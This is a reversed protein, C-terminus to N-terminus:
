VVSKRDGLSLVHTRRMRTALSTCNSYPEEMLTSRSCVISRPNRALQCRMTFRSSNELDPAVVAVEVTDEMVEAAAVTVVVAAAMVAEEELAATVEVEVLVVTVEEAVVLAETAAAEVLVVTVAAAQLVVVTVAAEVEALHFNVVWCWIRQVKLM